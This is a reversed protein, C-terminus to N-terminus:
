SRRQFTTLNFVDSFGKWGIVSPHYQLARKGFSEISIDSYCSMHPGQATGDTQLFLKNNFVFSNSKLCLKLVAIICDTPPFQEQRAELAKKVAQLGSQNDINPFMNFIDSSVLICDETLINNKNLYDIFNLMESTDQIRSEYKLVEPYLCREVFISLDEVAMGCSSTIVRVPNNGKHTKVLGYM